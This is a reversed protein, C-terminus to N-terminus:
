NKNILVNLFEMYNFPINTILEKHNQIMWLSEELKSHKLIFKKVMRSYRQKYQMEKPFRPEFAMVACEEFVVNFKENETLLEFKRMDVDIDAGEKLIKMYTPERQGKFYEHKLLLLHSTDHSVDYNIANNFFDESSMDTNSIEREGHKESWYLFLEDFLPKILKAGQEKLFQIDFIHKEWSKNPLEWFSHSCKLTYLGDVSIYETDSFWKELVAINGFDVRLISGFSEKNPHIKNKVVDLDKSERKFFPFYHKMAVSGIIM